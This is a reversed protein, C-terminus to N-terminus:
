DLRDYMEDPFDISQYISYDCVDRGICYHQMTDNGCSLPLYDEGAATTGNLYEHRIQYETEEPDYWPWRSFLDKLEEVVRDIDPNPQHRPLWLVLRVLSYLEKRSPGEEQLREDLQAFCPLEFLDELDDVPLPKASGSRTSLEYQNVRGSRDIEVSSDDAQEQLFAAIRSPSSLEQKFSEQWREDAHHHELAARLQEASAPEGLSATSDPAEQVTELLFKLKRTSRSWDKWIRDEQGAAFFRDIRESIYSVNNRLWAKQDDSLARGQLTLIHDFAEETYELYDEEVRELPIYLHNDALRSKYTHDDDESGRYLCKRSASALPIEAFRGSGLEPRETIGTCIRGPVVSDEPHPKEYLHEAIDQYLSPTDAERILGLINNAFLEGLDEVLQLRQVPTSQLDEHETVTQTALSSLLAVVSPESIIPSQLAQKRNAPNLSLKFFNEIDEILLDTDDGYQDYGRQFLQYFHSKTYDHPVAATQLADIRNKKPNHETRNEKQDPETM